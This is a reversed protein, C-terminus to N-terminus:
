TAAVALLTFLLVVAVGIAGLQLARRRGVSGELGNVVAYVLVGVVLLGFFVM